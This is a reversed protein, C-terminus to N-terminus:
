VYIGINRHIAITDINYRYRGLTAVRTAIDGPMWGAYNFTSYHNVFRQEYNATEFHGTRWRNTWRRLTSFQIRFQCCCFFFSFFFFFCLFLFLFFFPLPVFLSLSSSFLERRITKWRVDLRILRCRDSLLNIQKRRNPCNRTWNALRGNRNSM